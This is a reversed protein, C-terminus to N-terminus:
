TGKDQDEADKGTADKALVEIPMGMLLLALMIYSGNEGTVMSTILIAGGIALRGLTIITRDKM